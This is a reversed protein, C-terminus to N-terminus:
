RRLKSRFGFALTFISLCVLHLVESTKGRPLIWGHKELSWRIKDFNLLDTMQNSTLSNEAILKLRKAIGGVRIDGAVCSGSMRRGASSHGFQLAWLAWLDLLVSPIPHPQLFPTCSSVPLCFWCDESLTNCVGVESPQLMM